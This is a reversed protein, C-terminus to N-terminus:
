AAFALKFADLAEQFTAEPDNPDAEVDGTPPRGGHDMLPMIDVGWHWYMKNTQIQPQQLSVSGIECGETSIRYGNEAARHYNLEPM